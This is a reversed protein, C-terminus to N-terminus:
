LSDEIAEIAALTLADMTPLVSPDPDQHITEVLWYLPRLGSTAKECLMEVGKKTKVYFLGPVDRAMKGLPAYKTPVTLKKNKMNIDGGYYRQAIGTKRVVVETGEVHTAAAAAGYFDFPSGSRHREQSLDIFHGQVCDAVGGAAMEAVENGDLFESLEELTEQLIDNNTTFDIELTM